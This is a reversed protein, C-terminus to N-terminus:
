NSNLWRAENFLCSILFYFYFKPRSMTSVNVAIMQFSKITELCQIFCRFSSWFCVIFTVYISITQIHYHTHTSTNKTFFPISDSFFIPSALKGGYEVSDDLWFELAFEFRFLYLRVSRVLHIYVISTNHIHRDHWVISYFRVFSLQPKNERKGRQQHQRHENDIMQWENLVKEISLICYFCM